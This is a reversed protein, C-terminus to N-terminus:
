CSFDHSAFGAEEQSDQTTLEGVAEVVTAENPDAQRTMALLQEAIGRIQARVMAQNGVGTRIDKIAKQLVQIEHELASVKSSSERFGEVADKQDNYLRLSDVAIDRRERIHSEDLVREIEEFRPTFEQRMQTRIDGLRKNLFTRLKSDIVGEPADLDRTIKIEIEKDVQAAMLLTQRRLYLVSFIATLIAVTGGISGIITAIDSM